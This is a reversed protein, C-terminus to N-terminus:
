LRGEIKALIIRIESFAEIMSIQGRHYNEVVQKLSEKYETSNNKMAKILKLRDWVLFGSFALLLAIIAGPGGAIVQDLLTLLAKEM